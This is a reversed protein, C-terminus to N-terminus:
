EDSHHQHHLSRGRGHPLLQWTVLDGGCGARGKSQRSRDWLKFPTFRDILKVLVARDEQIHRSVDYFSFLCVCVCLYKEYSYRFFKCGYCKLKFPQAFSWSMISWVTSSTYKINEAIALWSLSLHTWLWGHGGLIILNSIKDARYWIHSSQTVLSHNRVQLLKSCSPSDHNYNYWTYIPSIKM